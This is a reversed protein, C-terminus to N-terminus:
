HCAPLFMSTCMMVLLTREVSCLIERATKFCVAKTNVNLHGHLLFLSLCELACGLSRLTDLAPHNRFSSANFLLNSEASM